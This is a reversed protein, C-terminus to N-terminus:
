KTPSDKVNFILISSEKVRAAVYINHSRYKKKLELPTPFM